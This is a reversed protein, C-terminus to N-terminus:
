PDYQGFLNVCEDEDVRCVQTLEGDLSYEVYVWSATGPQDAYLQQIQFYSLPWDTWHCDSYREFYLIFENTQLDWDLFSLAQQTATEVAAPVDRWGIEDARTCNFFESEAVKVEADRVEVSFGSESAESYFWLNLWRSGAMRGDPMLGGVNSTKLGILFADPPLDPHALVHDMADFLSYPPEDCLWSDPEEGCYDEYIGGSEVEDVEQPCSDVAFDNPPSCASSNSPGCQQRTKFPTGDAACYYGEADTDTCQPGISRCQEVANGDACWLHGREVFPQATVLLCDEDTPCEHPAYTECIQEDAVDPAVPESPDERPAEEVEQREESTRGGCGPLLVCALFGPLLLRM